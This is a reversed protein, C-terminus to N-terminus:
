SVSVCNYSVHGVFFIWLPSPLVGKNIYWARSPSFPSVPFAGPIYLGSSLVLNFVHRVFLKASGKRLCTYLILRCWSFRLNVCTSHLMMRRGIFAGEDAISSVKLWWVFIGEDGSSPIKMFVPIFILAQIPVIIPFPSQQDRIAGWWSQEGLQM